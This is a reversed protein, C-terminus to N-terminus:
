IKYTAIYCHITTRKLIRGVMGRPDFIAGDRLNNAGMSKCHSFMFFFINKESVVHGPAKM